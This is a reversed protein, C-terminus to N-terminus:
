LGWLLLFMSPWTVAHHNAGLRLLSHLDAWVVQVVCASKGHWCAGPMFHAYACGQVRDTTRHM